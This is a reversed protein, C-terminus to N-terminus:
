GIKLIGSKKSMQTFMFKKSLEMVSDTKDKSKQERVFLQKGSKYNNGDFPM